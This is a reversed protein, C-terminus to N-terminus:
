AGLGNRQLVQLNTRQDAMAQDATDGAHLVVDQEVVAWGEFDIATIGAVVAAIDLDGTGMPCFVKSDWVEAMDKGDALARSIVERRADKLHLHNIREGWRQLAEVPDGGGVILHGTDLTLGVGSVELLRDIEAPSEVETCAHHHFTATYGRDACRRVADDLNRGLTRWADAPLMLEPMRAGGGPHAQRIPRSAVALTPRPSPRDAPSGAADFLDLAQELVTISAMYGADDAFPLQIWGGSLGLDNRALRDALEGGTGLYGPDGLDIGRYGIEALGSMLWEPDPRTFGPDSLEFAGFSCPANALVVTM